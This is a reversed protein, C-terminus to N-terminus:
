KKSFFSTIPNLGKSKNSSEILFEDFILKQIEKNKLENSKKIFKDQPLNKRLNEIERLIQIGKKDKGYIKLIDQLVLAYIQQIPKMIQNSIYFAYDIKINNEQIYDPTEIREGQLANKNKNHIYVYPIRDGISPKNGPDRLTMRDALVKHAISNPNKYGSRLSKSIILKDIPYKEQIINRLCTKLFDISKKLNQEKLIINIAGGYVDKVVPANDRRKSVNGMSKYKGKEPNLEYLIGEYRKKAPICFPSYTKEYELDHPQKLFKSALHGVEQALEITIELAEKGEIKNGKTNELNFTFFVSDTNHVIMNGIGAAFHHNETTLDYVYGEYKIPNLRKVSVSNIHLQEQIKRKNLIIIYHEEHVHLLTELSSNIIFYYGISSAIWTIQSALLQSYCNIVINGNIECTGVSKIFGDLFAERIEKKNNLMNIHIGYKLDSYVGTLHGLKFAGDVDIKEIIFVKSYSPYKYHLLEQGDVLDKPSIEEGSSLLLSHDDTVDVLGTKTHVRIMQKHEALEHRIVRYLRTWGDETWTEIGRLECFEKEQKDKEKCQVWNNNGYKEALQEITLIDITNNKINRIYVPTYSAVSDGYIYEANTVVDGYKTTSCVKGKYIEEIIRKAYLLLLRGTATTSAAVDKDYFTSTKSGCQGYLSNATIKYALQRQDLVRKMFEDTQQPILKRTNKRASLLEELIIPMLAKEGNNVFRCVKYGSKIKEAKSKATKRVYKFTDYTIDVYNYGPINDYIYIGQKNKYGTEKILNGQLDYEKTLVKSNQSINESCMVSPYLSAFDVCAIPNNLYLNCKPELCIAGEYGSNDNMNRDLVPMLINNLRCKKAVYSTLKIGQGRFVLFTIPVSCLNAMEIFGTIVDVKNLLYHLLNCDQICYKAIVSRDKDSGLSLTFIDKPTVDDKALCWRMSSKITLLKNYKEEDIVIYFLKETYNISSVIFKIGGNFYEVSYDILEIHIFSNITLGTMNSTKIELVGNMYEDPLSTLKFYDGIFYGSVYDLKYSSLNETKRFHNYLDIQIRGPTKIYKIDHQGSAINITTKQLNCKCTKNDYGCIENKNRSLKLFDKICNCEEARRFMFEYDFGFINYGIIIDPNERQVLNTWALIVEKETDYTELEISDISECGNLVICNSLYPEKEGYYLFTSGIFTIKDGKLKPFILSLSKNLQLIKNDRSINKDYIINIINVMTENGTDDCDSSKGDDNDGDCDEIMLDNSDDEDEVEDIYSNKYENEDNDDDLNSTQHKSTKEFMSEITQLKSFNINYINKFESNIFDNIKKYIQLPIIKNKTYVLDVQIHEPKDIELINDNFELNFARCLIYKLYLQIKERKIERKEFFEIINSALKKYTKVPVPFDGHSSSAEIDFSMIKYPAITEKGEIPHICDVNVNFEYDCTTKYDFEDIPSSNITIWGSSSINTIHLFRLLPPINSEYIRTNTKQFLYGKNNLKFVGNINKYWMNKVKNYTLMNNFKIIIFKHLKGDDFGNLTKKNAYKLSVIGSILPKPIKSEIEKKFLDRTEFTWSNGVKIYFFPEFGDVNISYSKGKENIGFIQIIFKYQSKLKVSIDSSNDDNNDDNNDDSERSDQNEDFSDFVNFDIIRCCHTESSM